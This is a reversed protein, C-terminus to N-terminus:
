RHVNMPTVVEEELAKVKVREQNLARHVHLVEQRMDATNALGRSLINRQSRLNNIEIKLLRIDEVREAYQKEGRYFASQLTELKEKLLAIENNRRIMQTGILDKEHIALHLQKQLKDLRIEDDSLTKYLRDNELRKEKLEARTNQLIVELNRFEVRIKLCEKELKELNKQQRLLESEKARITELNQEM